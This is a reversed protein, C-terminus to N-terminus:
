WCRRQRRWFAGDVKVVDIAIESRGQAGAPVIIALQRAAPLPVSWSGASLTYGDSLGVFPPLGRVRIFSNQPVAGQPGVQISLQTKSAPAAHTLPAVTIFVRPSEKHRYLGCWLCAFALALTATAALGIAM